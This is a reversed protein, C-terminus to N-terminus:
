TLYSAVEQGRSRRLNTRMLLKLPQHLKRKQPYKRGTSTHNAQEKTKRSSKNSPCFRTKQSTSRISVMQTLDRTRSNQLFKSGSRTTLMSWTKFRLGSEQSCNRARGWTSCSKVSTIQTSLHSLRQHNRTRHSQSLTTTMKFRLKLKRSLTLCSNIWWISCSRLMKTM